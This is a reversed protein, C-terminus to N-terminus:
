WLTVRETDKPRMAVHDASPAASPTSNQHLRPGEVHRTGKADHSPRPSARLLSRRSM